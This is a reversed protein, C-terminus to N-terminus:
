STPTPKDGDDDLALPSEELGYAIAISMRCDRSGRKSVSRERLRAFDM